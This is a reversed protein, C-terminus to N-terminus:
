WRHCLTCFLRSWYSVISRGCMCHLADYPLCYHQSKDAHTCVVTNSFLIRTQFQPVATCLRDTKEVCAETFAQQAGCPACSCTLTCSLLRKCAWVFCCSLHWVIVVGSDQLADAKPRDLNQQPYACTEYGHLSTVLRAVFSAEGPGQVAPNFTVHSTLTVPQLVGQVGSSTQQHAIAQLLSASAIISPATMIQRAFAAASSHPLKAAVNRESDPAAHEAPSATFDAAAAPM